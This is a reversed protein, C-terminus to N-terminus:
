STWRWEVQRQLWPWRVNKQAKRWDNALHTHKELMTWNIQEIKKHFAAWAFRHQDDNTCINENIVTHIKFGGAQMRKSMTSLICLKEKQCWTCVTDTRDLETQALRKVTCCKWNESLVVLFSWCFHTEVNPQPNQAFILRWSREFQSICIGRIGHLIVFKTKWKSM